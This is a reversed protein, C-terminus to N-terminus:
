EGAFTAQYKRRRTRAGKEAAKSPQAVVRAEHSQFRTPLKAGHDRAGGAEFPPSVVRAIFSVIESSRQRKTSYFWERTAGYIASSITSALVAHSVGTQTARKGLGDLVVIRIAKTLASDLLPGFSGRSACQTENKHMQKLYDCVALVIAEIASPCTGDFRINREKLLAHFDGAVMAEFLTFKDAYHDYFTARNLTAVDTIDQVLIEEFSKEQLLKRLADQLLRRTRKQRPDRVDCDAVPIAM